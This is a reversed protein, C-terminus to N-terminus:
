TPIPEPLKSAQLREIDQEFDSFGGDALFRTLWGKIEHERIAPDNLVEESAVSGYLAPQDYSGSARPWHRQNIGVYDSVSDGNAIALLAFSMPRM